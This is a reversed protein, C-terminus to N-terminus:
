EGPQLVLETAEPRALFRFPVFTTGLGPSVHLVGGPRRYIGALYRWRLHALRLRGRPSPVNIQGAHMHGALVLQFVGPPLKDVVSPYHCLLIRLDADPDALAAPRAVRRRYTRPDVGVVQIRRGRVEVTAAADLLLVAPDLDDLPAPKSFPDRSAAFDHNGLVVFAGPLLAVLERLREEGAPRSLLDGSIAVLDPERAATWEVAREVATAGRSPVGLHFDSLHVIRLGALEPPLGTLPVDLTRLRVWGAEFHGWAIAAGAGLVALGAGGSLTKRSVRESDDM